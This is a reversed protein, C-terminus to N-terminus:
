PQPSAPALRLGLHQAFPTFDRDNHLLEHRHRICFTAILCDITKRVTIGRARLARFNDAAALAIEIGVSDFLELQLLLRKTRRRQRTDRIGQLVECVILDTIGIRERDLVHDLWDAQRTDVGRLYDVWVTTDVILM